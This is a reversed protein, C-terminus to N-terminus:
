KLSEAKALADDIHACFNEKGVKDFFGAHKMMSLPQEEVHSLLLQINSKKCKEYFKELSNLATVDMAPVSRMRLIIVDKGPELGIQLFKDAAAFFM